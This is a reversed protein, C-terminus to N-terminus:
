IYLLKNRWPFNQLKKRKVVWDDVIFSHIFFIFSLIYFTFSLLCYKDSKGGVWIQNTTQTKHYILRQLNNLALDMKIFITRNWVIWNLMFICNLHLFGTYHLFCPKTRNLRYIHGKDPAVVGPWLPGPLLPLLPTCRMGWLELRLPVEGDSQKTDYGPCENPYPTRGRQM